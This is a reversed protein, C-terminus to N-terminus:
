GTMTSKRNLDLVEKLWNFPPSRCLYLAWRGHSNIRPDLHPYICPKTFKFKGYVAALIVAGIIAPIVELVLLIIM